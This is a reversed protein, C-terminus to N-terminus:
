DAYDDANTIEEKMFEDAQNQLTLQLIQKPGELMVLKELETDGFKSEGEVQGELQAARDADESSDSELESEQASMQRNIGDACWSSSLDEASSRESTRKVCGDEGRVDVGSDSRQVLNVVTLPLIKVNTGPGHRVQILGQEVDVIAGIKILLDLGLLVDYSDTDVVMFTMNCQVGGVKIPVEGIRGLAQTVAGSATKYTESGFVMHMLGLERVVAAAMVSMSAGTDVLGEILCGNIEVSLHLTKSRHTRNVCIRRVAPAAFVMSVQAGETEADKKKRAVKVLNELQELEGPIMMVTEMPTLSIKGKIFHSLIKSRISHEWNTVTGDEAVEVSPGAGAPTLEMPQRRRPIQTYSFVNENGCFRNLKETITAEDDLLVELFNAAGSNSRGDKTKKWCRDESHGLSSCFSCKVGYNDIRHPMGCKACKPRPEYFRPCTTAIHDKGKCIQCERHLTSSSLPVSNSVGGKFFNILTDNLAAVQHGMSVDVAGEELEEKLPEFPTEGIKGLVRELESAAGVLEEIDAFTRVVCLKRIESRLRALFRRRQEADTIRGRQFLRDLREFYKQVREGPEQKIADLKARIDDDDVKRYKQL